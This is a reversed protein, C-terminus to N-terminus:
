LEHAKDWRTIKRYWVPLSKNICDDDNCNLYQCRGGHRHFYPTGPIPRLQTWGVHDSIWLVLGWYKSHAGLYIWEWLMVMAVKFGSGYYAQLTCKCELVLIWPIRACVGLNGMREMQRQM